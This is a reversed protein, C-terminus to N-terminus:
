VPIVPPPTTAAIAGFAIWDFTIDSIINADHNSGGQHASVQAYATFGTLSKNLVALSPTFQVSTVGNNTVTVAVAMITKFSSGFTIDKQATTSGSASITGSGSQIVFKDQTGSGDGITVNKADVKVAANTGASGDAPKAIWIFNSGDTSLIKDASGTPDPLQQVEAWSMVAGDNTLFQGSVLAPITTGTGGPIEVDDAESVLTGDADYLRVRYSGDGWIDVSSRGDTGLAVTSGNNVSKDPDAYVDKPTTTGTSYFKLSGGSALNGALDFFVPRQDLIRFTPM